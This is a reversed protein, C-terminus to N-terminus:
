AFMWFAAGLGVFALLYLLRFVRCCGGAVKVSEQEKLLTEKDDKMDKKGCFVDTKSVSMILEAFAIFIFALCGGIWVDMYTVTADRVRVIARMGAGLLILSMSVLLIALRCGFRASPLYMSLWCLIVLNASPVCMNLLHWCSRRKMVIKLSLENFKGAPYDQVVMDTSLEHLKWDTTDMSTISFIPEDEWMLDVEKNSYMYSEMIVDCTKKDLPFKSTDGMCRLKMKARYNYWFTGNEYLLTFQNTAPTAQIELADTNVFNISPSWFQDQFRSHVTIPERTCPNLKDWKLRKDTHKINVYTEFIVNEQVDIEFHSPWLKYETKVPVNPPAELPNYGDLLKELIETPTRCKDDAQTSGALAALACFTLAYWQM